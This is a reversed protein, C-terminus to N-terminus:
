LPSPDQQSTALGHRIATRWFSEVMMAVDQIWFLRDAPQALLNKGTEVTSWISIVSREDSVQAHEFFTHYGVKEAGGFTFAFRRQLEEIESSEGVADLWFIVFLRSVNLGVWLKLVHSGSTLEYGAGFIDSHGLRKVHAGRDRAHYSPSVRALSAPLHKDLCEELKAHLAKTDMERESYFLVLAVALGSLTLHVLSMGLLAWDTFKPSAPDDIALFYFTGVVGLALAIGLIILAIVRITKPVYILGKSDLM